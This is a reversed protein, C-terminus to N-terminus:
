WCRFWWCAQKAHYVTKELRSSRLRIRSRRPPGSLRVQPTQSRRRRRAGSRCRGVSRACHAPEAQVPRPHESGHAFPLSRHSPVWQLTVFLYSSVPLRTLNSPHEEVLHNRNPTPPPTQAPDLWKPTSQQHTQGIVSSVDEKVGNEVQMARAVGLHMEMWAAPHEPAGTSRVPASCPGDHAPMRSSRNSPAPFFHLKPMCGHATQVHERVAALARSRM